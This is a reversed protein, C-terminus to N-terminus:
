PQRFRLGRKRAPDQSVAPFRGRSRLPARAAAHGGLGAPGPRGTRAPGMEGSAHAQPDGQSEGPRPSGGAGPGSVGWMACTSTELDYRERGLGGGAQARRAPTHGRGQGGAEHGGHAGGSVGTGGAQHWEPGRGELRLAPPCGAERRVTGRVEAGGALALAMSPSGRRGRPGPRTKSVPRLRM